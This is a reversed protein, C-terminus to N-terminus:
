HCMLVACPPKDLIERTTGGLLWERMRSHGYAGMVLVDANIDAAKQALAQAAGRGNSTICDVTTNIGKRALNTAIDDGPNAGNVIETPDVVAIHVNSEDNLLPIVSRIAYAANASPHWGMLVTEFKLKNTKETPLIIAPIGAEYLIGEICRDM